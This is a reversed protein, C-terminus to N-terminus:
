RSDTRAVSVRVGQGLGARLFAGFRSGITPKRNIYPM